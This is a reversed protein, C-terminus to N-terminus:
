RWLLEVSPYTNSFKAFILAAVGECDTVLRIGEVPRRRNQALLLLSFSSLTDDLEEDIRGAM